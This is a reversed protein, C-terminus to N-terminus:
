SPPTKGVGVSEESYTECGLLVVSDISKAPRRCTSREGPAWLPTSISNVANDMATFLPIEEKQKQSESLLKAARKAKRQNVPPVASAVFAHLTAAIDSPLFSDGSLPQNSQESFSPADSHSRSSDKGVSAHFSCLNRSHSRKPNRKRSWTPMSCVACRSCSDQPM